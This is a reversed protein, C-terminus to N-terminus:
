KLYVVRLFTPLIFCGLIALAACFWIWYGFFLYEFVMIDPKAHEGHHFVTVKEGIKRAPPNTSAGTTFQHNHALNDQYEIMLAYTLSGKSGKREEHGIVTGELQEASKLDTHKKLVYYVCPVISLAFLLGLLKIIM